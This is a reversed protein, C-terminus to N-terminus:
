NANVTCSSFLQILNISILYVNYVGKKLKFIHTEFHDGDNLLFTKINKEEMADTTEVQSQSFACNSYLENKNYVILVVIVNYLTLDIPTM